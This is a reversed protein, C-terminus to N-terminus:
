TTKRIKWIGYETNREEDTYLTVNQAPVELSYRRQGPDDDDDDDDDDYVNKFHGL